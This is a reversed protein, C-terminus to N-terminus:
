DDARQRALYARYLERALCIDGEAETIFEQPPKEFNFNRATDTEEEAM